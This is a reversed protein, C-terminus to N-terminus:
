PRRGAGPRAPDRAACANRNAADARVGSSLWLLAQGCDIAIGFRISRILRLLALPDGLERTTLRRKILRRQRDRLVLLRSGDPRPPSLCMHFDHAFAQRLIRYPDFM